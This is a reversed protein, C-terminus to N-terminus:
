TSIIEQKLGNKGERKVCYMLTDVRKMIVDANEPPTKCTVMGISFTVPWGNHKMTDLLKNHLRPITIELSDVGTVTFLVSFEDGGLRAAIDTVRINEKLTHGVSRLLNDGAQHGMADNTNKLNDIDLLLVTFPHGYRRLKNIEMDILEYFVRRNSIGTLYDTMSLTQERDLAQLLLHKSEELDSVSNELRQALADFSKAISVIENDDHIKISIGKAIPAQTAKEITASIKYLHMLTQRMYVFGIIELLAVVFVARFFLYSDLHTVGKVYLVFYVVALIVLPFVSTLMFLVSFKRIISANELSKLQLISM